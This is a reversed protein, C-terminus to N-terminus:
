DLEWWYDFVRRYHNGKPPLHDYRRVRHSSLRKLYQQRESSRPYKIYKGTEQWVGNVFGWNIYGRYPYYRHDQRIITRLRQDKQVRMARRYCRGTKRRGRATMM